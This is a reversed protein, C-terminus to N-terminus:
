KKRININYAEEAIEIMTQLGEVQLECDSLAKKLKAIELKFDRDTPSKSVGGHLMTDFNSTVLKSWRWKPPIDYGLDRMWRLLYGHEKELGTYKKWIAKKTLGSRLYEEVILKREYKTFDKPSKFGSISQCNDM